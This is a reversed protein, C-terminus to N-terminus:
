QGDGGRELYLGRTCPPGGVLVEFRRQIVLVDRLLKRMGVLRLDRGIVLGQGEVIVSVQMHRPVGALAGALAFNLCMEM